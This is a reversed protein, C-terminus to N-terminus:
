ALGEATREPLLDVSKHRELNVLITGYTHDKRLSWDDVGLLRAGPRGGVAVGFVLVITALRATRRRHAAVGAPLREAFVRRPCHPNDCFWRRTHLTLRVDLGQWPLDALRRAYGSHVRRAVQACIPCYVAPRHARIVLTVGDAETVIEELAIVTPDPVLTTTRM